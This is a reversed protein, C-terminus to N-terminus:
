AMKRVKTMFSIFVDLERETMQTFIQKWRSQIVKKFSEVQDRGKPALSVFIVRRDKTGGERQVYGERILRNILGTARPLSMKMARALDSMTLRTAAAIHVLTFLQLITITQKSIFDLQVGRIIAPVLEGLLSSANTVKDPITKTYM